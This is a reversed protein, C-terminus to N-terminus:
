EPVSSRDRAPDLKEGSVLAGAIGAAVAIHHRFDPEAFTVDFRAICGEGLRHRPRVELQESVFILIFDGPEIRVRDKHLLHLMHHLAVVREFEM